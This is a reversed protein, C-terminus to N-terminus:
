NMTKSRIRIANEIVKKIETLQDRSADQKIYRVAKKICKPYLSDNKM